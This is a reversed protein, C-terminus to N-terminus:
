RDPDFGKELIIDNLQQQVNNSVVGPGGVITVKKVRARSNGYDDLAKVEKDLLAKTTPHLEVAGTTLLIPQGYQASPLSAILSDAYNMGNAILVHSRDPDEDFDGIQPNGHKLTNFIEAATEFRTSGGIRVTKVGLNVLEQHVNGSVAGYQGIIIATHLDGNDVQEKLYDKTVPTLRPTQTLLIPADYVNTLGNASLADAYNEGTAIIVRGNLGNPYIEEAISVATEYRNSGSIRDVLQRKVPKEFQILAKGTAIEAHTLQHEVTEYGPLSVRLYNRRTLETESLENGRYLLGTATDVIMGKELNITLANELIPNKFRGKGHADTVLSDVVAGLTTAGEYPSENLVLEVRAGEAAEYATTEDVILKQVEVNFYTPIERAVLKIEAKGDARVDSFTLNSYLGDGENVAFGLVTAGNTLAYADLDAKTINLRGLADTTGHTGLVPDVPIYDGNRDLVYRFPPVGETQVGFVDVQVDELAYGEEDVVTIDLGGAPLDAVTIELDKSFELENGRIYGPIIRETGDVVVPEDKVETFVENFPYIEYVLDNGIDADYLEPQDIGLRRFVLNDVVDGTSENHLAVYLEVNELKELDQGGITSPYKVTFEAQGKNVSLTSVSTGAAVDYLAPEKLSVSPNGSRTARWEAFLVNGTGATNGSNAVLADQIGETTIDVKIVADTNQDEIVAQEPDVPSVPSAFASVSLGLVM